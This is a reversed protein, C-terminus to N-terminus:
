STIRYRVELSSSHSAEQYLHLLFSLPFLHVREGEKAIVRSRTRRILWELFQARGERLEGRLRRACAIIVGTSQEEMKPRDEALRLIGSGAAFEVPPSAVIRWRRLVGLM